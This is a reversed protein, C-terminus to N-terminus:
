RTLGADRLLRIRTESFQEQTITGQRVLEGYKVLADQVQRQGYVETEM